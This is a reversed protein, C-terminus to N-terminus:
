VIMVADCFGLSVCMVDPCDSCFLLLVADDYLHLYLVTVGFWTGAACFLLPAFLLHQM